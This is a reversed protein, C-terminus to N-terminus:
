AVLSIANPQIEYGDLRLGACRTRSSSASRCLSRANTDVCIRPIRRGPRRSRMHWLPCRGPIFRNGGSNSGPPNGGDPLKAILSLGGPLRGRRGKQTIYGSYEGSKVYNKYLFTGLGTKGGKLGSNEVFMTSFGTSITFLEAYLKKWKITIYIIRETEKEWFPRLCALRSSFLSQKVTNEGQCRGKATTHNRLLVFCTRNGTRVRPWLWRTLM